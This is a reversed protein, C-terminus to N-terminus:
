MDQFEWCHAFNDGSTNESGIVTIQIDFILCNELAMQINLHYISAFIIFSAVSDRFAKLFDRGDCRSM